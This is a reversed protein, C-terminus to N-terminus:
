RYTFDVEFRNVLPFARRVAESRGEVLGSFPRGREVFFPEIPFELVVPKSASQAPRAPDASYNGYGRFTVVFLNRRLHATQLGAPLPDGPVLPSMVDPGPQPNQDARFSIRYTGDASLAVAMRSLYCHDVRMVPDLFQFVQTDEIAEATAGPLREAPVGLLSIATVTRPDPVARVATYPYDPIGCVPRPRTKGRHLEVRPLIDERSHPEARLRTAAGAGGRLLGPPEARGTPGGPQAAAGGAWAGVLVGAALWRGYM